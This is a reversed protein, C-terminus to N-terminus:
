CGPRALVMVWFDGPARALGMETVRADLLNRRHGPSRSWATVVDSLSGYGHAVNEAIRCFSYGRAQARHGPGSGDAGRHTMVGRRAMDAAHGAAVAELRPAYAIAPRGAQDRLANVATLAQPNAAAGSALHLCLVLFFGRRM